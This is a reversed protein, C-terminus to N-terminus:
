IICTKKTDFALLVDENPIDRVNMKLAYTAQGTGAASGNLASWLLKEMM